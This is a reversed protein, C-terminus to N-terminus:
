TASEPTAWRAKAGLAGIKRMHAKGHKRAVAKGGLRGLEAAMSKRAKKTSTKNTM